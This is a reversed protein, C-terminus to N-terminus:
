DFLKLTQFNFFQLLKAPINAAVEGFDVYEGTKIKFLGNRCIFM